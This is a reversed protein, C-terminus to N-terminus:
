ISTLQKYNKNKKHNEYETKKLKNKFATSRLTDASIKKRTFSVGLGLLLV